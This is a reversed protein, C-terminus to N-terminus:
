ISSTSKRAVFKQFMTTKLYRPFPDSAILLEIQRRAAKVTEPTLSTSLIKRIHWDLNVERPADTVIFEDYIEQAKKPNWTDELAQCEKWFDLNEENKEDQMHSRLSEFGEKDNVVGEFTRWKAKEQELHHDDLVRRDEVSEDDVEAKKPSKKSRFAMKFARPISSFSFRKKPVVPQSKVPCTVSLYSTGDADATKEEHEELDEDSSSDEEPAFRPHEVQRNSCQRGRHSARMRSCREFVSSEPDSDENSSAPTYRRPYIRPPLDSSFSNFTRNLCAHTRPTSYSTSAVSPPCRNRPQSTLSMGGRQFDSQVLLIRASTARTSFFNQTPVYSYGILVPEGAYGAYCMLRFTVSEQTVNLQIRKDFVAENRHDVVADKSQSITKEGHSRSRCEIEVFATRLRYSRGLFCAHKILIGVFWPNKARLIGVELVASSMPIMTVPDSPTSLAPVSKTGSQHNMTGGSRTVICKGPAIM